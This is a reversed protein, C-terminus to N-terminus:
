SHGMAGYATIQEGSQGLESANIPNNNVTILSVNFYEAPVAINTYNVYPGRAQIPSTGEISPDFPATAIAYSDRYQECSPVSLM